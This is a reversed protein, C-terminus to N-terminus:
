KNRVLVQNGYIPAENGIIVPMVYIYDAKSDRVILIQKFGLENEVVYKFTITGTNAVSKNIEIQGKWTRKGSPGSDHTLAISLVNDYEYKIVAQSNTDSKIERGELKFAGNWIGSLYSYKGYSDISNYLGVGAITLISTIASIWISDFLPHKGFETVVWYPVVFILLWTCFLLTHGLIKRM